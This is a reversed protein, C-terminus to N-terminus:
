TLLSFKEYVYMKLHWIKYYRKNTNNICNALYLKFSVDGRAKNDTSKIVIRRCGCVLIIPSKHKYIKCKLLRGRLQFDRLIALAASMLKENPTLLMCTCAHPYKELNFSLVNILVKHQFNNWFRSEETM